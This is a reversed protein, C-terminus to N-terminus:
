SVTLGFEESATGGGFFVDFLVTVVACLNLTKLLTHARKTLLITSLGVFVQSAANLLGLHNDLLELRIELGAWTSAVHASRSKLGAKEALAIPGLIISQHEVVGVVALLTTAAASWATLQVSAGILTLPKGVALVLNAAADLGM